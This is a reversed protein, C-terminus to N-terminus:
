LTERYFQGGVTKKTYYAFVLLNFVRKKCVRHMDCQYGTRYGTRRKILTDVSIFCILYLLTSTDIKCVSMLATHLRLSIIKKRLIPKM